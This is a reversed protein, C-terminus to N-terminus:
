AQPSPAGRRRHRDLVRPNWFQRIMSLLGSAERFRAVTDALVTATAFREGTEVLFPLGLEAGLAWAAHAGATLRDLARAADDLAAGLETVVAFARARDPASLRPDNGGASM